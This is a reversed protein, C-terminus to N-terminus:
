PAPAMAAFGADLTAGAGALSREDLVFRRAAAGLRARQPADEILLALAQAYAAASHDAVLIGTQGARMADAVGGSDLAVVPLGAAQAELYAVGYAEDFGPYAYIDASALLQPINEVPAAGLWDIRDPAVGAFAAEVAPREAGGGIIILRWDLPAILRLAEALFAYSKAKAGARMMAACILLPPANPPRAPTERAPAFRATDIFPPLRRLRAGRLARRLGEEDQATMAFNVAAMRLGAVVEAQFPAWADRDRKGAYSAEVSAYPIHMDRCLVPGVFDPSKYYPHYTLWLDPAAGEAQWLQALRARELAAAGRLQALRELSAASSYSVFRSVLDVAHGRARLAAMLNRAMERDGSPVPHDPPKM